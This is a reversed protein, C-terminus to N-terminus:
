KGLAKNAMNRAEGARKYQRGQLLKSHGIRMGPLQASFYNVPM